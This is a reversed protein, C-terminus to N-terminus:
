TDEDMGYYGPESSDPKQEKPNQHEPESPGSRSPEEELQGVLRPPGKSEKQVGVMIGGAVM